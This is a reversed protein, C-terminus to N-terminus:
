EEEEELIKLEKNAYVVANALSALIKMLNVDVDALKLESSLYLEKFLDSVEVLSERFKNFKDIFEKSAM